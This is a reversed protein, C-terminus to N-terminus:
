IFVFHVENKQLTFKMILDLLKKFIYKHGIFDKSGM